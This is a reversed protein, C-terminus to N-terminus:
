VRGALFYGCCGFGMHFRFGLFCNFGEDFVWVQESLVGVWCVGWFGGFIGFLVWLFFVWLELVWMLCGFGSGVSASILLLGLICLFLWFFGGLFLLGLQLPPPVHHWACRLPMSNALSAMLSAHARHFPGLCRLDIEWAKSVGEAMHALFLAHRVGVAARIAPYLQFMVSLGETLCKCPSSTEFMTSRCGLICFIWFWDAMCM